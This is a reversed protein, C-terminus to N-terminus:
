QRNETLFRKPNDSTAPPITAITTTPPERWTEASSGPPRVLEPKVSLILWLSLLSAARVAINTGKGSFFHSLM